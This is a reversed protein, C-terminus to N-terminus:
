RHQKGTAKLQEVIRDAMGACRAGDFPFISSFSGSLQKEIALRMMNRARHLRTKATAIKIGLHSAAEETSLGEVDRLVFIVRLDNPLEDVAQELLRRTESRAFEAEPDATTLSTPFPLVEGYGPRATMEIEELGVDARRRRVRGVAENIAIRTLWTSLQADGRFADLHTFAQVYAAQVVDEAEADNGVVARASRFLRRNNRQVVIRVATEDGARVHALLDADPLQLMDALFGSAKVSIGVM